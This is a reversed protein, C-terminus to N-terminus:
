EDSDASQEDAWAKPNTIAAALEATFEVDGVKDGVKTGAPLVVYTGDGLPAHVYAVLTRTAPTKKTARAPM